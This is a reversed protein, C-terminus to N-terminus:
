EEQPDTVPVLSYRVLSPVDLEDRVAGIMAEELFLVPRVDAPVTLRGTRGAATVRDWSVTSDAVVGSQRRVWVTGEAGPQIARDTVGGGANPIPPLYEPLVLAERAARRAGGEPLGSIRTFLRGFSSAAWDDLVARVHAEELPRPEYAVSATWGGSGPEIWSVRYVGEEPGAPEPRRVHVLGAPGLGVLDYPALPQHVSSTGGEEGPLQPSWFREGMDLRLLESPDGEGLPVALFIASDPGFLNGAVLVSRDVMGLPSAGVSRDPLERAALPRVTELVEGAATFLTVRRLAVDVAWITDNWAGAKRLGQFEGPGEGRGGLMAVYRGDDDLRLIGELRSDVVLLGGGPAVAVDLIGTLLVSDGPVLRGMEELRYDTALAGAHAEPAPADGCGAGLVLAIGISSLRGAARHRM